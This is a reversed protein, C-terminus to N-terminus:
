WFTQSLLIRLNGGFYFVITTLSFNRSKNSFNSTGFFYTTEMKWLEKKRLIQMKKPWLIQLGSGDHESHFFRFCDFRINSGFRGFFSRPLDKSFALLYIRKFSTQHFLSLLLRIILVRWDRLEWEASTLFVIQSRWCFVLGICYIWKYIFRWWRRDLWWLFSKRWFWKLYPLKHIFKFDNSSELFHMSRRIIPICNHKAYKEFSEKVLEIM